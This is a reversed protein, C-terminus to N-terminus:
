WYCVHLSCQSSGTMLFHSVDHNNFTYIIASLDQTSFSHVEEKLYTQWTDRYIMWRSQTGRCVDTHAHTHITHTYWTHRSQATVHLMLYREMGMMRDQGTQLRSGAKHSQQWPLMGGWQGTVSPHQYSEAGRYRMIQWCWRTVNKLGNAKWRCWGRSHAHDNLDSMHSWILSTSITPKYRRSVTYTHTDEQIKFM